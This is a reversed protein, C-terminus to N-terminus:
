EARPFEVYFRTGRSTGADVDITGGISTVIEHVIPLGLGSNTPNQGLSKTSFYPEFIRWALEQPIGRGTDEVVFGCRDGKVMTTVTIQNSDPEGPDIAEYANLLLNVIVQTLQTPEAKVSAKHNADIVLRARTAIRARVIGAATQIARDLSTAGPPTPVTADDGRRFREIRGVLDIASDHADTLAPM